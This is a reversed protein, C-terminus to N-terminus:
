KKPFRFAFLDADKLEIRLRVTKGALQSVDSKSKWSVLRDAQDGFQVDCDALAFGPIPKGGADQIEVRLGGAASTAFNIELRAGDFRIPKTILEGGSM